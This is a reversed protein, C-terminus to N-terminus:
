RPRTASAAHQDARRRQDPDWSSHAGARGDRWDLGAERGHGGDVEGLGRSLVAQGAPVAPNESWAPDEFRWDKREPAIDSRGATIKAVEAALGAARSVSGRSRRATLWVSRGVDGIRVNGLPEAGDVSSPTLDWANAM